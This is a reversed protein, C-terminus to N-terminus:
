RRREVSLRLGGLIKGVEIAPAMLAEFIPQRLYGVGLAVYLQAQLEACSGKAIVLFRHFEAASGREFGEALNSM